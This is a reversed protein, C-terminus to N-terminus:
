DRDPEFTTLWAVFGGLETSYDLKNDERTQKYLLECICQEPRNM